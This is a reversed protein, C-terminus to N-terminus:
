YDLREKRAVRQIEEYKRDNEIIAENEKSEDKRKGIVEEDEEKMKRVGGVEVIEKRIKIELTPPTDTWKKLCERIM